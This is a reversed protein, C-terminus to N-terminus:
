SQNRMLIVNMILVNTNVNGNVYIYACEMCKGHGPKDQRKAKHFHCLKKGWCM